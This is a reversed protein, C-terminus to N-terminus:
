YEGKRMQRGGYNLFSVLVSHYDGTIICTDCSLSMDPLEDEVDSEDSRLLKLFERADEIRGKEVWGTYTTTNAQM